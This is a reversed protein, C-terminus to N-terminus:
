RNNTDLIAPKEQIDIHLLKKSEREAQQLLLKVKKRYKVQGEQMADAQKRRLEPTAKSWRANAAAVHRPSKEKM